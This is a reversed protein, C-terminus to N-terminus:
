WLLYMKCKSHIDIHMLSDLVPEMLEYHLTKLQNNYLKVWELSHLDQFAPPPIDDIRYFILVFTSFTKNWFNKVFENQLLLFKMYISLPRALTYSKQSFCMFCIFKIKEEKWITQYIFLLRCKIRYQYKANFM